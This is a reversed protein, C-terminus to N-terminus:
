TRTRVRESQGDQATAVSGCLIDSTGYTRARTQLSTLWGNLEFNSAEVPAVRDFIGTRHSEHRRESDVVIRLHLLRHFVDGALDFVDGVCPRLRGCERLAQLLLADVADSDQTGLSEGHQLDVRHEVLRTQAVKTGGQLVRQLDREGVRLRGGDAVLIDLGVVVAETKPINCWRCRPTIAMAAERVRAYATGM